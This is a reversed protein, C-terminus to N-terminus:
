RSPTSRGHGMSRRRVSRRIYSADNERSLCLHHLATIGLPSQVGMLVMLAVMLLVAAIFAAAARDSMLWM